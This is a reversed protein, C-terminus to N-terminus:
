DIVWTVCSAMITGTTATAGQNNLYINGNTSNVTLYISNVTTQSQRVIPFRLTIFPRYENPIIVYTSSSQWSDISVSSLSPFYLTVINGVRIIKMEKQVEDSDTFSLTTGMQVVPRPANGDAM